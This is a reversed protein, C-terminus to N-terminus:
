IGLNSDEICKCGIVSSIKRSVKSQLSVYVYVYRDRINCSALLKFTNESFDTRQKFLFNRM